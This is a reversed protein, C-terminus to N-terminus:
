HKVDRVVMHKCYEQCSRLERQLFCIHIGGAVMHYSECFVFKSVGLETVAGM